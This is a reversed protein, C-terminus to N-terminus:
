IECNAEVAASYISRCVAALQASGYAANSFMSGTSSRLFASFASAQVIVHREYYAWQREPIVDRAKSLMDRGLAIDCEDKDQASTGYCFDHLNCASTFLNGFREIPVGNVVLFDPVIGTTAGAGCGNPILKPPDSLNCGRPVAAKLEECTADDVGDEALNSEFGDSGGRESPEYSWEEYDRPSELGPEDIYTESVRFREDDYTETRGEQALNFLTLAVVVQLLRSCSKDMSGERSIDSADQTLCYYTTPSASGRRLVM